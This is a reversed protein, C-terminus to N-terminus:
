SQGGNAKAIAGVPAFLMMTNIGRYAKGSVANYPMGGSTESWPKVWPACGQELQALIKDTVVQYLDM